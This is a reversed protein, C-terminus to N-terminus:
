NELYVGFSTTGAQRTVRYTGPGTLIRVPSAGTLSFLALDNGPTDVFVTASHAAPIGAADATFLGVLVSAGAAIVVDTSTAQTTGSALITSQAM